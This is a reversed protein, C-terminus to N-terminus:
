NLSASSKTAPYYLFILLPFLPPSLNKKLIKKEKAVQLDPFAETQAPVEKVFKLSLM